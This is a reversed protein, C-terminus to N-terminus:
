RHLREFSRREFECAASGRDDPNRRTVWAQSSKRLALFCCRQTDPGRYRSVGGSHDDKAVADATKGAYGRSSANSGDLRTSDVRGKHGHAGGLPEDTTDRSEQGPMTGIIEPDEPPGSEATSVM